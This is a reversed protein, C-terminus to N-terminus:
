QIHKNNPWKKHQTLKCKYIHETEQNNQNLRWYALSQSSLSRQLLRNTSLLNDECLGPWLASLVQPKLINNQQTNTKRVGARWLINWVGTEHDLRSTSFTGNFVLWGVLWPFLRTPPPPQLATPMASFENFCCDSTSITCDTHMVSQLLLVRLICIFCVKIQGIQSGRAQMNKSQQQVFSSSVKGNCYRLPLIRKFFELAPNGGVDSRYIDAKDGVLGYFKM